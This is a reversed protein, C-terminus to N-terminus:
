AAEVAVWAGEEVGGRLVLQEGLRQGALEVRYREARPHGERDSATGQDWIAVRGRGASIEGEYDLYRARHDFSRRGTVGPAPPAELQFTVLVQGDEIMLDYHVDGEGTTHEQVVFRRKV